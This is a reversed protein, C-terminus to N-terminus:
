LTVLVLLLAIWLAGMFHWYTACLGLPSAGPRSASPDSVRGLRWRGWLLLVLGGTLHAGHLGTFIYFFTSHPSTPVYIGQQVLLRWVLVQGLLFFLGLIVTGSMWQRALRPGAQARSAVRAMELTASSALLVATNFWLANPMAIAGWAAGARRILYASIFAAFLMAVTALFIWLGLQAPQVGIALEDDSRTHNM